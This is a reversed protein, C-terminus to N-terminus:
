FPLFPNEDEEAGKNGKEPEDPKDGKIKKELKAVQGELDALKDIVGDQFYTKGTEIDVTAGCNRCNITKNEAM